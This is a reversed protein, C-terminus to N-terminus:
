VTGGGDLPLRKQCRHRWAGNKSIAMDRGCLPCAARPYRRVLPTREPAFWTRVWRWVRELAPVVVTSHWVVM